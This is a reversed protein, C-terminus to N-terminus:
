QAWTVHIIIVRQHRESIVYVLVGGGGFAATLMEPPHRPHYRMGAQPDGSLQELTGALALRAQQPLTAIQQEVQAAFVVEYPEPLGSV